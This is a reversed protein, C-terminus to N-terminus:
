NSKPKPSTNMVRRALNIARADIETRSLTEDAM